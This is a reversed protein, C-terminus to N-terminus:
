TCKIQDLITVCSIGLTIAKANILVPDRQSPCQMHLV